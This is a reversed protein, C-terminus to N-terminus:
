GKQHTIVFVVLAAGGAVLLVAAGASLADTITSWWNGQVGARDYEWAKRNRRRIDVEASGYSLLVAALSAYALGVALGGSWGAKGIAAILSAAVAVAGAAIVRVFADRHQQTRSLAASLEKSAAEAEAETLPDDDAHHGREDDASEPETM